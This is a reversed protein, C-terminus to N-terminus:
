RVFSVENLEHNLTNDNQQRLNINIKHKQKLAKVATFEALYRSRQESVEHFETKIQELQANAEAVETERIRKLSIL